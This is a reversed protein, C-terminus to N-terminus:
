VRKLIGRESAVAMVACGSRCRRPMASRCNPRGLWRRNKGSLGAGAHDRDRGPYHQPGARIHWGCGKVLGIEAAVEADGLAWHGDPLDTFRSKGRGALHVEDGYGAARVLMRVFAGRKLDADPYFFADGDIVGRAWLCTIEPLAWHGAVDALVAPQDALVFGGNAFLMALCLLGALLRKASRM